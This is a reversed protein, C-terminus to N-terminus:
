VLGGKGVDSPPKPVTKRTPKIKMYIEKELNLMQSNIKQKEQVAPNIKKYKQKGNEVIIRVGDAKIAEGLKKYIKKLDLYRSIKEQLLVDNQDSNEKFFTEIKSKTM